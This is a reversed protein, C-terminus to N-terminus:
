AGVGTTAAVAVFLSYFHTAKLYFIRDYTAIRASQKHKLYIEFKDVRLICWGGHEMDHMLQTKMYTKGGYVVVPGIVTGDPDEM